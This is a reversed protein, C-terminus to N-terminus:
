QQNEDNLSRFCVCYTARSQRCRGTCNSPWSKRSLCATACERKNGHSWHTAKSIKQLHAEVTYSATLPKAHAFKAKPVSLVDHLQFRSEVQDFTVMEKLYSNIIHPRMDITAFRGFNRVGTHDFYSDIGVSQGFINENVCCQILTKKKFFFCSSANSTSYILAISMASGCKSM